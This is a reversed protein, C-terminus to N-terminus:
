STPLGEYGTQSRRHLLLDTAGVTFQFVIGRSCGSRQKPQRLLHKLHLSLARSGGSYVNKWRSIIVKRDEEGYCERVVNQKRYKDGFKM